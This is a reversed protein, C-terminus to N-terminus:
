HRTGRFYRLAGPHLEIPSTYIAQGIDLKGIASVRQAMEARRRFLNATISFVTDEDLGREVVLFNPVAITTTDSRIGYTGAPVTASRYSLGGLARMGATLTGLDILRIPKADALETVGVTPLGGSWFFADINGSGLAPICENIGLRLNDAPPVAVGAVQLMRKAILETGSGPSGLSVRHGVLDAISRIPSDTLVVLHIFDDYIRAIAKLPVPAPFSARGAAADLAADAAVIAMDATGSSIRQLNDVSGSTSRVEIGVGGLDPALAAALEVGYSYYVGKTDGTALVIPRNPKAKPACAAVFLAGSAAFLARRSIPRLNKTVTM